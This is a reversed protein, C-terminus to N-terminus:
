RGREHGDVSVSEVFGPPACCLRSPASLGPTMLPHAPVNTPCVSGCTPHTPCRFRSRPPVECAEIPAADRSRSAHRGCPCSTTPRRTRDPRSPRGCTRTTRDRVRRREAAGEGGPLLEDVGVVATPRRRIARPRRPRPREPEVVTAHPGVTRHMPEFAHALHHEVLPAVDDAGGADREVDVFPSRAPRARPASRSPSREAADLGLLGSMSAPRSCSMVAPRAGPSSAPRRRGPRSRASTGDIRASAPPTDSSSEDPSRSINTALSRRISRIRREREDREVLGYQTTVDDPGPLRDEDVFRSSNAARDPARPGAPRRRTRPARSATGGRRRCVSRSARGSRRSAARTGPGSRCYRAITEPRHACDNRRACGEFRLLRERGAEGRSCSILSRADARRGISSSRASSGTRM